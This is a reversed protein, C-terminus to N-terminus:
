DGQLVEFIRAEAEAPSVLWSSITGGKFCCDGIAKHLKERLASQEPQGHVRWPTDIILNEGKEKEASERSAHVSHLRGNQLVIWVCDREDKM